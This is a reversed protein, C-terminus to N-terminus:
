EGMRCLPLSLSVSGSGGEPKGWTDNHNPPLCTSDWEPPAGAGRVKRHGQQVTRQGRRQCRVPPVPLISRSGTGQGDSLHSRPGRQGPTHDLSCRCVCLILISSGLPLYNTTSSFCTKCLPVYPRAQRCHPFSVLHNFRAHACMDQSSM